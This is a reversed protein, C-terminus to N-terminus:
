ARVSSRPPYCALFSHGDAGDGRFRNTPLVGLDRLGSALRAVRDLHGLVDATTATRLLGASRRVSGDTPLLLRYVSSKMSAVERVWREGRRSALRRPLLIVPM